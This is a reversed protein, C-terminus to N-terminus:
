LEDDSTEDGGDRDGEMKTHVKVAKGDGVGSGGDKRAFPLERPPPPESVKSAQGGTRATEEAREMVKGKAGAGQSPPAPM